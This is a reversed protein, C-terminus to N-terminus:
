RRCGTRRGHGPVQRGDQATRSNITRQLEIFIETKDPVIVNDLSQAIVHPSFLLPLLWYLKM